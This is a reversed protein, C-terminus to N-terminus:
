RKLEIGDVDPIVKGIYGGGLSPTDRKQFRAVLLGAPCDGADVTELSLDIQLIRGPPDM